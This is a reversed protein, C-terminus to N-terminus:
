LKQFSVHKMELGPVAPLMRERIPAIGRGFQETKKAEKHLEVTEWGIACLHVVARGSPSEPHPITSPRDVQGVAWSEPRSGAPLEEMLATRFNSLYGLLDKSEAASFSDPFALACLETVPNEVLSDTSNGAPSLATYLAILPVKATADLFPNLSDTHASGRADAWEIRTSM